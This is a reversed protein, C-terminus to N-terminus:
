PTVEIKLINITSENALFRQDARRGVVWVIENNYTLLWQNNKDLLSLKEDKFYKSVKKKGKMGSPFFYDGEQKKRLCLPFDIKNADVFIINNTSKSLNDVKCLTINLPFKLSNDSETLYFRAEMNSKDNEFLLLNARNKLLTHSPSLVKKGSQAEILNYIDQWATFGFPNLWHYLYNEYHETNKIAEVSLMFVGDEEKIHLSSFNEFAADVLQNAQELHELTNKFSSLFNSNLEKLIPVVHHRIKNRYYKDSSNSSDERWQISMQQAYEQIESRSFHLLPRIINGNLMPIGTLGELGTGRTFNIIFTEVQDDLHHATAIYDFGESKLVENFWDYRLKRAALQISLKNQQAYEATQFAIAFFPIKLEEALQKVFDADADSETGRLQFNCHAIGINLGMAKCLHVLVVSDIGGSVALLLKEKALFPFNTVIHDKFKQLM